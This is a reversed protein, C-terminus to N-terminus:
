CHCGRVTCRANLKPLTSERRPRRSREKQSDGSEHEGHHRDRGVRDEAAVSPLAPCARDELHVPDRHRRIGGRYRSTRREPFDIERARDSVAIIKSAVMLAVRNQLRNGGMRAGVDNENKLSVGLEDPALGVVARIVSAEASSVTSFGEAGNKPYRM